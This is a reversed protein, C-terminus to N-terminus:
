KRRLLSSNKVTSYWIQASIFNLEPIGYADLTKLNRNYPHTYLIYTHAAMKM